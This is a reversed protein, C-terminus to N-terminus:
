DKKAQGVHRKGKKIESTKCILKAITLGADTLEPISSKLKKRCMVIHEAKSILMLNEIDCNLSDGDRFTVIMGDPIKGHHEEWVHRHLPKWRDWLGGSMSVKILKYGDASTRISGLPLENEPRHGKTFRTKKSRELAEPSCFEEQKKGKTGPPHGKQYWGTVGSKIGNRQRFQKMGTATWHTGFKENCMEAMEKSSVGWSNDRIFEHMGKPYRKQYKWYEESTWQKRGNYYKYNARFSKMSTTTFHTGFKKNCAEALDDDRLKPANAKVFEHVEQSYKNNIGM